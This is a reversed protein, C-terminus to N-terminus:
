PIRRCQRNQVRRINNSQCLFLRNIQRGFLPDRLCFPIRRVYVPLYVAKRKADFAPPNDIVFRDYVFSCGTLATMMLVTVLVASVLKALVKKGM